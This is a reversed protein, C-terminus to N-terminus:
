FNSPAPGAGENLILYFRARDRVLLTWGGTERVPVGLRAHLVEKRSRLDFVRLTGDPELMGALTPDRCDLLLSKAPFTQKWEDRIRSVSSPRRRWSLTASGTQRAPRRGSGCGRAASFTSATSTAM